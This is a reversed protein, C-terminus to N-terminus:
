IMVVINTLFGVRQYFCCVVCLAGDFGPVLKLVIVKAQLTKHVRFFGMPPPLALDRNENIFAGLTALPPYNPSDFALLSTSNIKVARNARLLRDNFCICVQAFVCTGPHNVADVYLLLTEHPAPRRTGRQLSRHCCLDDVGLFEKSRRQLGTTVDDLVANIVINL